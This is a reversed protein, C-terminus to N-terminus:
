IYRAYLEDLAAKPDAVDMKTRETILLANSLTSELEQLVASGPKELVDAALQSMLLRLVRADVLGAVGFDKRSRLYLRDHGPDFLLVAVPWM